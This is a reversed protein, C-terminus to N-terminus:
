LGGERRGAELYDIRECEFALLWDSGISAATPAPIFKASMGVPRIKKGNPGITARYAEVSPRLRSWPVACWTAVSPSVGVLALLIARGGADDCANLTRVEADTFRKHYELRPQKASDVFKVEIEVWLGINTCHGSLATMVVSVGGGFDPGQEGTYRTVGGVMVKRAHSRMLSATPYRRKFALSNHLQEVLDEAAAGRRQAIRGAVRRKYKKPLSM